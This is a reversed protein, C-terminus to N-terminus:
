QYGSHGGSPGDQTDLGESPTPTSVSFAAQMNKSFNYLTLLYIFTKM